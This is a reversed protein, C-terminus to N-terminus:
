MADPPHDSFFKRHFLKLKNVQYQNYIVDVILKTNDM